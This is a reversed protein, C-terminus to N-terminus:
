PFAAPARQSEATRRAVDGLARFYSASYPAIATGAAHLADVARDTDFIPRALARELWPQDLGPLRDALLPLFPTVLPEDRLESEIRALWSAYPLFEIELGAAALLEAFADNTLYAPQTLHYVGQAAPQLAITVLARSVDDIPVFDIPGSFAPATGTRVALTLLMGLIEQAAIEMRAGRAPGIGGPRFVSVSLGREAAQWVLREALWKSEAYGGLIASSTRALPTEAVRAPPTAFTDFIATTSVYHFRAGCECALRLLFETGQVNAPTLRPTSALFDVRAGVHFITGIRAPLARWDSARLGLNPTALDGVLPRIRAEWGDHWRELRRLRRRIRLLAGDADDDRVLCAVPSETRELLDALVYAGLQGTAGTLLIEAGQPTRSTQPQISPDLSWERLPAPEAPSPRDAALYSAIAASLGSVSPAAFFLEFPLPASFERRLRSMIEVAQLSTGGYSEFSQDSADIAVGLVQTWVAAVRRTTDALDGRSASGPVQGAAAAAVGASCTGRPTSWRLLEDATRLQAAVHSLFLEAERRDLGRAPGRMSEASIVQSPTEVVPDALTMRDAGAEPHQPAVSPEVPLPQLLDATAFVFRAPSRVSSPLRDSLRELWERVPQNRPGVVFPFEISEADAAAALQALRTLMAEAVGRGLVRCSLFCSEVIWKGRRCHVMLGGVLGYDGFRDRVRATYITHSKRAAYEAIEAEHKRLLTTHFQNTRQTLQAVRCVDAEALPAFDVVLELGRLFDAYSPASQLRARRQQENQYMKTRERDEETAVQHDLLWLDDVFTAIRDPTTPFEFTWVDPAAHRVEACELPNDDLFVFSELALDLDAAIEALNQSKPRWNVRWAVIDSECLVMEPRTRFVTRVDAEENKSAVALLLGADIRARLQAQFAQRPADIVVGEVGLEGVAGGWLTEDADVVLVKPRPVATAFWHRVAAAALGCYFANTFPIHALADREPDAIEAIPHRALVQAASLCRIGPSGAIMEALCTSAAEDATGGVTQLWRESAPCIVVLLRASSTQGVEKLAAGTEWAFGVMQKAIEDTSPSASAEDGHRFFDEWRILVVALGSLAGRLRSAPDLLEPLLQQYGGLSILPHQPLARMWGALPAALPDLTFTGSFHLRPRPPGGLEAVLDAITAEEAAAFREIVQRWVSLCRAAFDPPFRLRDYELLLRLGGAHRLPIFWLPMDLRGRPLPVVDTEHEAELGAASLDLFNFVCEVPWADCADVPPLEAIRRLAAISEAFPVGASLRHWFERQVALRFERLTQRAAISTPVVLLEALLGVVTREEIRVRRHVPVGFVFDAEETLLHLTLAASAFLAASLSSAEATAITELAHLRESPVTAELLEVPRLEGGAERRTSTPPSVPWAIQRAHDTSFGHQTVTRVIEPFRPLPGNAAGHAGAEAHAGNGGTAGTENHAGIESHAGAVYRGHDHQSAAAIREARRRRQVWDFYSWDTTVETSAAASYLQAFDRMWVVLSWLDALLHHVVWIVRPPQEDVVIVIGRLLLASDSAFGQLAAQSEIARVAASREDPAVSTLDHWAIWASPPPVLELPEAQLGEDTAVFTVRWARHQDLLRVATAEFRQRDLAERWQTGLILLLAPDGPRLQELSWLRAQEAAVPLRPQVSWDYLTRSSDSRPPECGPCRAAQERTMWDALAAVTPHEYVTAISGTFEVGCAHQMRILLEHLMLSDFGHALLDFDPPPPTPSGLLRQVEARLRELIPTANAAIISSSDLALTERSAALAALRERLQERLAIRMVKLTTTRPLPEAQLWIRAPRQYAPLVRFAQRLRAELASTFAERSMGRPPQAPVVVLHVEDNEGHPVGLVALEAIGEVPALVREVDDPSIKKGSATVIIEKLRGTIQFKGAALLRGRDGTRFWGDVFVPPALPQDGLYGTFISPGRLQIEGQGSADPDAIRVEVRPLPGVARCDRDGRGSYAAVGASETLGYAILCPIGLWRLTQYVDSEIAAGGVLFYPVQAGFKRQLSRFLWPALRGDTWRSVCLAAAFLWRRWRPQDAVQRRIGSLIREPLRPVCFLWQASALAIAEAIRTADLRKVFHVAVGWSLGTAVSTFEGIHFLPMLSLSRERPLWPAAATVNEINAVLHRHTLAAAKSTGVTGSTFLISGVETTTCPAFAPDSAHAAATEPSPVVASWDHVPLEGNALRGVQSPSALLAAAGISSATAGIMAAPWQPDVPVVVMGARSLGLYALIWHPSSEGVLLVRDGSQWPQRAIWAHIIEAAKWVDSYAYQTRERSDVDISVLAPQSGIHATQAMLFTVLTDAQTM